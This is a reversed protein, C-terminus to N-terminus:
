FYLLVEYYDVQEDFASDPMPQSIVERNLFNLGDSISSEIDPYSRIITGQSTESNDPPSGAGFTDMVTLTDTGEGDQILYQEPTAREDTISDGIEAASVIDTTVIYVPGAGSVTLIKVNEALKTGANVVESM